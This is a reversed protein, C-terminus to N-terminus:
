GASYQKGYTQWMETVMEDTCDKGVNKMDTLRRIPRGVTLENAGKNIKKFHIKM